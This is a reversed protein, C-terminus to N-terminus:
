LPFTLFESGTFLVGLSTLQSPGIV